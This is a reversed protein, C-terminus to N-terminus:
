KQRRGSRSQYGLARMQKRIGQGYAAVNACVANLEGVRLRLAHVQERVTGDDEFSELQAIVGAMVASGGEFDGRDAREIAEEVAETSRALYVEKLVEPDDRVEAAFDAPGLSVSLDVTIKVEGQGGLLDEYELTVEALKRTGGDGPAVQLELVLSKTEGAYIDPLNLNVEASGGAPRYGIVGKISVGEGARVKVGLSQGVVSLLGQLEQSFIAPIRDPNDIYYFNGGGAEAMASLLDEDFDDGVGLTTLLLGSQRISGARAVLADRDTIGVNALGDTMLLVRNVVGKDAHRRAEGVGAALGGSLNTMGGVAIGYVRAKLRDKNTIHAAPQLVEVADDYTVVSLIDGQETQEVLFALARRTYDIKPGAMSGSRDLVAALNLPLRAAAGPSAAPGGSGEAGGAGGGAGPGGGAGEARREPAILQLLLYVPGGSEAPLRDRSLTAALKILESVFCM